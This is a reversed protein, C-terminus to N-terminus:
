NYLLKLYEERRPDGEKPLGFYLDLFKIKMSKMYDEPEAKKQDQANYTRNEPMYSCDINAAYQSSVKSVTEDISIAQSM